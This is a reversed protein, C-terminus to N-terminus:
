KQKVFLSVSTQHPSNAVEVPRGYLWARCATEGMEQALGSPRKHFLNDEKKQTGRPAMMPRQVYRLELYINTSIFKILPVKQLFLQTM